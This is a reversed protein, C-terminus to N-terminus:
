SQKKKGKEAKAASKFVIWTNHGDPGYEAM